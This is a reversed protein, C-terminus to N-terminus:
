QKAGEKRSKPCWKPSTDSYAYGELTTGTKTCVMYGATVFTRGERKRDECESCKPVAM